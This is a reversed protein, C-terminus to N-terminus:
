QVYRYYRAVYGRIFKILVHPEKEEHLDCVVRGRSDCLATIPSAMVVAGQM